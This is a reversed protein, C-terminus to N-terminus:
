SVTAAEQVHGTAAAHSAAASLVYDGAALPITVAFSGNQGATVQRIATPIAQAHATGGPDTAGTPSRTAAIVVSAGPATTGAVTVSETGPTTSVTLPAAPPVGHTLYRDRVAAPQELLAGSKIDQALRVFGAEVWTIEGASGAPKGDTFGISATTPDSAYPSPPVDAEDWDQEPIMGVGGAFNAMDLLMQSAGGPNGTQLDQEGREGNLLPWAHGTGTFWPIWPRGTIPCHMPAPAYCDGYGDTGGTVPEDTGNVSEFLTGYRRYGEGSPTQIGLVHDVVSLSDAIVPDSADLEGFRALELFGADVVSRQDADVSGNGLNYVTPANPDGNKSLRLFYPQSSYPGTSTVTWPEVHRRWDDATARYLQARASDGNAQAMAAASALGAIETAINSPSYGGQDEWREDGYVPGHAVLFDAAPAVHHAYLAHDHGLGSQWAMILPFAQEDPELVYNDSATAGNLLADRPFSGDPLQVKNFIFRTQAQATALDGDTLFGTFTEYFDREFIVRYNTSVDPLGNTETNAATAQGWPDALSSAVAGPFQKDETAKLVNASTWYQQLAERDQAATLGPFGAPPPRLGADYRLWGARYRQATQGFPANASATAARVASTETQGYGLTLTFSRQHAPDIQATQEVNGNDADRYTPGLQHQADLQTLGDSATGVFGSSSGSYPHDAALAGYVPVEYTRQTQSSRALTQYSVLANAGHHSGSTITASNAGGNTTGGGGAGNIMADYRVYVLYRRAAPVLPEFRTHMVVSDRAPDTLYDTVLRYRGSRATAIIECSMGTGDLPRAVYTMDRTQLDTFSHGDTVLYQLTSLNSNDTTPSYTDSLVGNAVTFWVRSRSTTASGLCDKRGLDLYATAGPGGLASTASWAPSAATAAAPAASLVVTAAILAPLCWATLKHANM